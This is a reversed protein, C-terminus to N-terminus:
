EVGKECEVYLSGPKYETGSENLDLGLDNWGAISSDNYKKVKINRFGVDTLLRKLNIKDYMWQHTEGRKRADGLIKNEIFRQLINQRSSGYAELRVMQEIIDAIYPDSNDASDPNANCRDLFEVYTRCLFEFDPVVVRMVGGPKLVIFINRLFVEANKTELHELLHSHYVVDAEGEGFPLGQSLDHVIINDPIADFRERRKGKIFPRAMFSLLPSQKIKLYISWDINVVDSHTKTGCGLNLIVTKM